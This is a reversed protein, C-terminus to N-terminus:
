LKRAKRFSVIVGALDGSTQISLENYIYFLTKNLIKGVDSSLFNLYTKLEDDSLPRYAMHTFGMLWDVIDQRMEEESELLLAVIDDNSLPMDDLASLNTFFAYQASFAGTMNLEVLELDKINRELMSYRATNGSKADKAMQVAAAEVEDNSIASRASTELLAAQAGLGQSFFRLAVEAKEKPLMEVLGNRMFDDMMEISYIKNLAKEFSVADYDQGLYLRGSEFADKIGEDHLIKIIRQLHLADYLSDHVDTQGVSASVLSFWFFVIRVIFRM